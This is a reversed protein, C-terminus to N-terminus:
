NLKALAQDLTEKITSQDNLTDKVGNVIFSPVTEKKALKAQVEGIMELADAKKAFDPLAKVEIALKAWAESAPSKKSWLDTRSTICANYAEVIKLLDSKELLGSEIDKVVVPCDALFQTVRKKFGLNPVELLAGDKKVFYRGDWTTQTEMQYSYLSLYGPKLLKMFTYGQDFKITHYIEGDIMFAITELVPHTSKKGDAPILQVYKSNYSGTYKVGTYSHLKVKGRLTDGKITVVYDAQASAVGYGILFFLLILVQLMFIKRM